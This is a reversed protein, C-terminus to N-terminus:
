LMVDIWGNTHVNNVPVCIIRQFKQFSNFRITFSGNSFKYTQNRQALAMEMQNDWKCYNWNLTHGFRSHMEVTPTRLSKYEFSGLLTGIVSKKPDNRGVSIEDFWTLTVINMSSYTDGRFETHLHKTQWTHIKRPGIETLFIGEVSLQQIFLWRLHIIFLERTM